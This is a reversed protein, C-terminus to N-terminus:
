VRVGQAIDQKQAADAQFFATAEARTMTGRLVALAVKSAQAQQTRGAPLAPVGEFVPPRNPKMGELATKIDAITPFYRSKETHWQVAKTFEADDVGGFVSQWAGAIVGLESATLPHRYLTAM